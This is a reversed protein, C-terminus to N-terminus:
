ILPLGILSVFFFFLVLVVLVVLISGLERKVGKKLEIPSCAPGTDLNLCTLLQFNLLIPRKKRRRTAKAAASLKAGTVVRGPYPIKRKKRKEKKEREGEGGIILNSRM